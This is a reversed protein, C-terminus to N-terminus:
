KWPPAANKEQWLSSILALLSRSSPTFQGCRAQPPNSQNHLGGCGGSTLHFHAAPAWVDGAASLVCQQKAPRGPLPCHSSKPPTPLRDQDTLSWTSSTSAGWSSPVTSQLIGGANPRRGRIACLAQTGPALETVITRMGTRAKIRM